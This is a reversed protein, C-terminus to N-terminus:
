TSIHTYKTLELDPRFIWESTPTSYITNYRVAIDHSDINELAVFLM